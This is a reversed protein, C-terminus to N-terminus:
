SRELTSNSAVHHKLRALLEGLSRKERATLGEFLDVIWREHEAAMRRFSRLGERTLKVRYARRDDPDADRVVLGDKELLDTIGTVNGGTVMMRRSLENMKLGHPARELQAMLDFRPLTTTFQAQLNQRVRTEILHTCALLRLWIRLSDHHDQTIRTELDTGVPVASESRARLRPM